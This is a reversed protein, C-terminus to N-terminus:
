KNNKVSEILAERSDFVQIDRPNVKDFEGICDDRFIGGLIQGNDLSDYCFTDGQDDSWIKVLYGGKIEELAKLENNKFKELKLM